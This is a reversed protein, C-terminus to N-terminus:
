NQKLREVIPQIRDLRTENVGVRRGLSDIREGVNKFDAVADKQTYREANRNAMERRLDAIIERAQADRVSNIEIQSALKQLSKSNELMQNGFWIALPSGIVSFVIIAFGSALKFYPSDSIYRAQDRIDNHTM